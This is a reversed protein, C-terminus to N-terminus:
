DLYVWDDVEKGAPNPQFVQPLMEASGEHQLRTLFLQLQSFAFEAARSDVPELASAAAVRALLNVHYTASGLQTLEPTTVGADALALWSGASCPCRGVLKSLMDRDPRSGFNELLLAASGLADLPPDGGDDRRIQDGTLAARVLARPIDLLVRRTNTVGGILSSQCQASWNAIQSSIIGELSAYGQRIGYAAVECALDERPSAVLQKLLGERNERPTANLAGYFWNWDIRQDSQV